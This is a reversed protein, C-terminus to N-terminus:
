SKPNDDNGGGWYKHLVIGKVKVVCSDEICSIKEAVQNHLESSISATHYDTEFELEIQAVVKRNKKNQDHKKKRKDLDDFFEFNNESM